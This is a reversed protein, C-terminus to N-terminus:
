KHWKKMKAQCAQVDTSNVTVGTVTQGAIIPKMCNDWIEHRTAGPKAAKCAGAIIRCPNNKIKAQCAQVDASNVTVGPVTQGAIIPKMCNDWIEHRNKGKGASTCATAINKCPHMQMVGSTMTTPTMATSSTMTTNSGSMNDALVLSSISCGFLLGMAMLLNKKM